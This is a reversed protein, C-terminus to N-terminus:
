GHPDGIGLLLKQPHVLNVLDRFEGFCVPDRQWLGQLPLDVYTIHEKDALVQKCFTCAFSWESV